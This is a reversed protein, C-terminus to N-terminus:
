QIGIIPNEDLPCVIGKLVLDGDLFVQRFTAFGEDVYLYEGFPFTNPGERMYVVTAKRYASKTVGLLEKGELRRDPQHSEREQTM